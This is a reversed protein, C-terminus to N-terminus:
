LFDTPTGPPPGYIVPVYIAEFYCMIEELNNRFQALDFSSRDLSHDLVLMDRYKSPFNHSCERLSTVLTRCQEINQLAVELHEILEKIQLQNQTYNKM